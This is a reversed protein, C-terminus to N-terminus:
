QKQFVRTLNEIESEKVFVEKINHEKCLDAVHYDFIETMWDHVAIIDQPKLYPAFTQFEKAKDGGDCFMITIGKRQIFKKIEDICEFVDKNKYYAEFNLLDKVKGGKWENRIDYTCFEADRTICFLLFFLSLNGRLTGIEIVRKFDTATLIREWLTMARPTQVIRRGLFTARLEKHSAPMNKVIESIKPPMDVIKHLGEDLLPYRWSILGKSRRRPPTENRWGHDKLYSFHIYFIDKLLRDRKHTRILHTGKYHIREAPFTKYWVMGPVNKFVREIQSHRTELLWCQKDNIPFWFTVRFALDDYKEFHKFLRKIDEELWYEDDDVVWFYDETTREIQRNRAEVLDKSDKVTFYDVDLNDYEKELKKIIEVTGDSSRDDISVLARNVHPLIQRLCPEIFDAGNKVITHSCIKVM